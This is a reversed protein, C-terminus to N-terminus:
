EEVRLLEKASLLISGVVIRSATVRHPRLDDVKHQLPGPLQCTAGGRRRTPQAQPM